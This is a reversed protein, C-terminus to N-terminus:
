YFYPGILILLIFLNLVTAHVLAHNSNDDDLKTLSLFVPLVSVITAILLIMYIHWTESLYIMKSVMTEPHLLQSFLLFQSILLTVMYAIYMWFYKLQNDYKGLQNVLFYSVFSAPVIWVVSLMALLIGKFLHAFLLHFAELADGKLGNASAARIEELKSSYMMVKGSRTEKYYIITDENIMLPHTYYNDSKSVASAEIIKPNFEAVYIHNGSSKTASFTLLIKNTGIFFSPYNMNRLKEGSEKDFFTIDSLKYDDPNTKSLVAARLTKKRSGAEKMGIELHLVYQDDNLSLMGLSHITEYSKSLFHTYPTITENVKSISVKHTLVSKSVIFVQDDVVISSWVPEDTVYEQPEDSGKQVVLTNDTKWYVLLDKTKTFDVVSSSIATNVGHTTSSYLTDDKIFYATHGDSWTKKKYNFDDISWLEQCDLDYTCEVYDWQKFTTRSISYGNDNPVSQLKFYKSAHNDTEISRSWDPSPPMKQEKLAISYQFSICIIVLLLTIIKFSKKMPDEKEIM